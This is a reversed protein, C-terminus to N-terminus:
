VTFIGIDWPTSESLTAAALATPTALSLACPCTIVLLSVVIWLASEFGSARWWYGMTLAALVLLLAVFVSAYRDALLAIKPKQAMASALAAKMAPAM